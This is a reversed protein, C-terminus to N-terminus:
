YSKSKAHTSETDTVYDPESIFEVYRSGPLGYDYPEGVVKFPIAYNHAPMPSPVQWEPSRSNWINGEAKEGHKMSYFFNVFFIFVSIFILYGAITLVLHTSDFGLTPDYDVIRRRMGLLGIRMMGFTLVLFSPTMLWFHFKGWFENMRRGTAKPFWYYLAAFFPFVFGGFITDHFHGVIFYTDTLHLDTSVTANPPGSLGGLLFVVIGGLVFLMPTPMEIKGGWLTAVWSFFKVGTPVAVLLTSYMFPVRLYENMGSAFMHHAWVLFGVLAIGLSSMAVWRYGFLPKRVFVPLLESIIGLGPLVFVYVAPHSYFWFMHQFLVPNGGKAPDFFGMGLLRQFMVLQFSLGILQTATLAIISTAISGWVFIPMRMATMGKARLRVVTAIINLSGLISSWGATFVGLFFMQVGVPARASLPPYGTWGTDFGGLILSMLLLVAAPVSVWYAFANMRPFAMDQAGLLLPVVYNMVGSIGLLISVIMIMGHLSMLSNYIQPGNQDFLRLTTTLFQLQSQALETRFIMAFAGGVSILVLSTVTYQIGIVKHDVSVGFYKEWGPKDEHHEPTDIGRAWKVWDDVVGVGFVFSIVGVFAGFVWAPETFFFTGFPKAGALLRIGTVFFGGILTGVVQWVLGRTIGRYGYLGFFFATAAMLLAFASAVSGTFNWSGSIFLDLFLGLFYGVIGAAILLLLGRTVTNFGALGWSFAAIAVVLGLVVGAVVHLSGELLLSLGAGLVFGVAAGVILFLLGRLFARM